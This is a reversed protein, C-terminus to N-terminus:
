LIVVFQHKNYYITTGIFFFYITPGAVFIDCVYVYLDM